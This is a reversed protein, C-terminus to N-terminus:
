PRVLRLGIGGSRQSPLQHLRFASRLLQGDNHVAGGRLVRYGGSVPGMPDISGGANNYSPNSIDYIDYQDWCWEHVNGLIDYLGWANPRKLGVQHTINGSNVSYWAYNVLESETEGFHWRTQTGARCAYEWQAETPLRYGTSGEVIEVANWAANVATPVPGWATPDTSGNIRYAPTLGELISLRNCFVLANYWSVTEVPRKATSTEPSVPTNFSSPNTMMVAEYQDQTVQYKGIRFGSMTVVGGNATRYNENTNRDPETTPSGMFFSGAPIQVMDMGQIMRFPIIKSFPVNSHTMVELTLFKLGLSNYLANSASITVQSTESLLRNNFYWSISKYHSVNTVAITVEDNFLRSLTINDINPAGSVALEPPMNTPTFTFPPTPLTSEIEFDDLVLKGTEDIMYEDSISEPMGGASSYFDGLGIRAVTSANVGDGTLVQENIWYGKVTTFSASGGLNLENVEGTWGNSIIFVSKEDSGANLNIAEVRAEESLTLIGTVSVTIINISIKSGLTLSSDNNIRANNISKREEGISKITLYNYIHFNDGNFVFDRDIFLTFPGTNDNTYNIAKVFDNAGPYTYVEEIAGTPLAFRAKLLMSTEVDDNLNWPDDGNFWAIFDYGILPAPINDGLFLYAGTKEPDPPMNPLGFLKTGRDVSMSSLGNVGNNPDFIIFLKLFHENTFTIAFRSELNEYILLEEMFIIPQRSPNQTIIKIEVQYRGVPLPTETFGPTATQLAIEESFSSGDLRTIIMVASELTYNSIGSIDINWNFTGDGTGELNAALIINVPTNSGIGIDIGAASGTAVVKNDHYASVTLTWRGVPLPMIDSLTDNIRNFEVKGGSDSEFLLHYGSF